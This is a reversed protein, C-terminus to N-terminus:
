VFFNVADKKWSLRIQLNTMQIPKWRQLSGPGVKVFWLSDIVFDFGEFSPGTSVSVHEVEFQSKTM